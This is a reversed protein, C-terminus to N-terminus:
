SNIKKALLDDEDNNDVVKCNPAVDKAPSCLVSRGRQDVLCSNVVDIKLGLEALAPLGLIVNSADQVVVFTVEATWEGIKLPQTTSGIVKSYSGNFSRLMMGAKDPPLCDVIYRLKRARHAPLVNVTSGSDALMEVKSLKSGLEADVLLPQRMLTSAEAVDTADTVPSANPQISPCDRAYHGFQHCKFCRPGMPCKATNHNKAGCNMCMEAKMQKLGPISCTSTDQLARSMEALKLELERVRRTKVLVGLRGLIVILQTVPLREVAKQAKSLWTAMSCLKLLLWSLCNVLLMWSLLGFLEKEIRRFNKLQHMTAQPFQEVWRFPHLLLERTQNAIFQSFGGFTKVMLLICESAGECREVASDSAGEHVPVVIPMPRLKTLSTWLWSYWAATADVSGTSEEIVPKPDVGSVHAETVLTKRRTRAGECSGLLLFFVGLLIWWSNRTLYKVDPDGHRSLTLFRSM